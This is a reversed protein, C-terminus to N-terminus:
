VSTLGRRSNGQDPFDATPQPCRQAICACVTDDVNARSSNASPRAYVGESGTQRAASAARTLWRPLDLYWTPYPGNRRSM